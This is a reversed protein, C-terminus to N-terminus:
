DLTKSLQSIEVLLSLINNKQATALCPHFNKAYVNQFQNYVNYWLIMKLVKETNLKLKYKDIASLALLSMTFIHESVSELRELPVNRRLWGTRIITNLKNIEKYYKYINNM